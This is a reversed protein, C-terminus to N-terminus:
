NWPPEFFSEQQFLIAENGVSTWGPRLERAFLELRRGSASSAAVADLGSANEGRPPARQGGRSSRGPHGDERGAVGGDRARRAALIEDLVATLPPKWSHRLPAVSVVVHVHSTETAPSAPDPLVPPPAIADPGPIAEARAKASGAEAGGAGDETDDNDDDDEREASRAAPPIWGLVMKEFPRRDGCGAGGSRVLPFVPEGNAAVQL